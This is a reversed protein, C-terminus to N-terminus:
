EAMSSNVRTKKQPPPKMITTKERAIKFWERAEFLLAPFSQMLHLYEGSTAVMKFNDGDTLFDFCRAKLKPCVHAEALELMSVVTDTTIGNCCLKDECIKKLGEVGYRDAAVLLHQYQAMTSAFDAAALLRRDVHRSGDNESADPLSGHYMYHLFSRFTSAEMDQITISTMKSEAM